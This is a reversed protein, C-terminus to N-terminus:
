KAVFAAFSGPIGWPGHRDSEIFIANSPTNDRFGNRKEYQSHGHDHNLSPM